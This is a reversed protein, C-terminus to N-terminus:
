ITAANIKRFLETPCCQQGGYVELYIHMKTLNIKIIDYTAKNFNLTLSFVLIRVGLLFLYKGWEKRM